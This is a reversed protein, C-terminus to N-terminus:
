DYRARSPVAAALRAAGLFPYSPGFVTGLASGVLREREKGILRCAASNADTVGEQHDASLMGDGAVGFYPRQYSKSDM